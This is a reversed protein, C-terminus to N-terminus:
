IMSDIFVVFLVVPLYLFSSYMLKRAYFDSCHRWLKFASYAYHTSMLLLVMLALYTLDGYYHLGFMLPFLLLSYVFSIKGVSSDCNGSASPLLYFGAKKYEEDGKWAIAWFHPFQWVFQVGFLLVILMLRDSSGSYALGGILIPLAGPLAGVFVSFPTVRKLPTYIFAYSFLSLAGLIAVLSNINYLLVVGLIATIGAFIVAEQISMREAPLPRDKTRAMLVDYDKELVENLANASGAVLFGGAILCALHWLNVDASASIIYSMSSTFIVLLLLRFKMLQAYDRLKFLFADKFSAIRKNVSISENSSKM